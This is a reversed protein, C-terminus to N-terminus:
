WSCPRRVRPWNTLSEHRLKGTGRNFRTNKGKSVFMTNYTTEFSNLLSLPLATGEYYETIIGEREARKIQKKTTKHIKNWTEEESVSLDTILTYQEMKIFSGHWSISCEPNNTRHIMSIAATEKQIKDAFWVHAIPIGYKKYNVKVMKKELFGIFSCRAKTNSVDDIISFM